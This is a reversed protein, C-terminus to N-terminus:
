CGDRTKGMSLMQAGNFYNQPIFVSPPHSANSPNEGPFHAVLENNNTRREILM